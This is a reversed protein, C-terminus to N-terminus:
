VKCEMCKGYVEFKHNIVQFGSEDLNLNEMPCIHIEKTKGCEMCILHHHHHHTDCRFRFKKEGEWETMELIEMEVFLSLNRYITDFSLGPYDPQLRELVDKATLYRKDENFVRILDERKGTLKYGNSKLLELAQTVNMEDGGKNNFLM